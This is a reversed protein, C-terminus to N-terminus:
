PVVEDWVFQATQGPPRGTGVCPGPHGMVGKSGVSIASFSSVTGAHLVSWLTRHVALSSTRWGALFAVQKDRSLRSFGTVGFTWEELLYIGAGVTKQQDPPFSALLGDMHGAPDWDGALYAAKAQPGLMALAVATVTAEQRASLQSLRSTPRSLEPPLNGWLVRAGVKIAALGGLGAVGAFLFDRRRLTRQEAMAWM